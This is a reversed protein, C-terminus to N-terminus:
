HLTSTLFPAHKGARELQEVERAVSRFRRFTQGELRQFEPDSSFFRFGGGVRVAIGVVRRNIEVVFCDSM